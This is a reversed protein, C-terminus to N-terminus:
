LPLYLTGVSTCAECAMLAQEAALARARMAAARQNAFQVAAKTEETTHAEHAAVAATTSLLGQLDPSHMQSFHWICYQACISTPESTPIRSYFFLFPPVPSLMCCHSLTRRGNRKVAPTFNSTPPCSLVQLAAKVAAHMSSLQSAVARRMASHAPRLSKIQTHSPPLTCTLGSTPLSPSQWNYCDLIDHATL